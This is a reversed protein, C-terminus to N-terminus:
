RRAPRAWVSKGFQARNPIRARTFCSICAEFGLLVLFPTRPAWLIGHRTLLERLSRSKVYGFGNDTMLRKATIGHEAYFALAREVFATITAAKEDDHLEVYALRPTTTSSRTRM